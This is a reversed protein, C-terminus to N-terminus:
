DPTQSAPISMNPTTTIYVYAELFIFMMSNNLMISYMNSVPMLITYWFLCRSICLNYKSVKQEHIHHVNKETDNTNTPEM